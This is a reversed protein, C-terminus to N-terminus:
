YQQGSAIIWHIPIIAYVYSYHTYVLDKTTVCAVKKDNTSNKAQKSLDVFELPEKPDGAGHRGKQTLPGPGPADTDECTGTDEMSSTTAEIPAGKSGANSRNKLRSGRQQPTSRHLPSSVGLSVM